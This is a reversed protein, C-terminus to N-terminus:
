HHNKIHEIMKTIHDKRIPKELFYINGLEQLEDKVYENLFGSIVIIPVQHKFIEESRLVEIVEFGDKGPMNLDTIVLDIKQNKFKKEVLKNIGEIGDLSTIVLHHDEELWTQYLDLINEEDDIILINM